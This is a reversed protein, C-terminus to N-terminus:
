TRRKHNISPHGEKVCVQEVLLLRLGLGNLRSVLGVLAAQDMPPTRLSTVPLRGAEDETSVIQGGFYDGWSEDLSGQIRIHYRSTERLGLKRRDNVGARRATTRPFYVKGSAQWPSWDQGAEAFEASDVGDGSFLKRSSREGWSTVIVTYRTKRPPAHALLIYRPRM